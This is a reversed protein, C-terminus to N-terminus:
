AHTLYPEFADITIQTDPEAGAGWLETGDFTVAYLWTPQEGEGRANTDPFVHCGRLGTITGLRGMAYEPMRTHDNMRADFTRVRDGIAFQAPKTAARDVPGGKSLTAFIADAPLKREPRLGPKLPACASREEANVEGHRELLVELASLWIDYYNASLYFAPPLCERAHRSEDLNWHGLAGACLTLGLARGEWDAHFVPEDIEPRVPGFGGRGGLDQPGNM